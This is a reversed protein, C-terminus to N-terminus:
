LCLFYEPMKRFYALFQKKEQIGKFLLYSLVPSYNGLRESTDSSKWRCTYFPFQLFSEENIKIRTTYHAKFSSHRFISTRWESVSRTYHKYAMVIIFGLDDWLSALGESIGENSIKIADLVEAEFDNIDSHGANWTGTYTLGQVQQTIYFKGPSLPCNM